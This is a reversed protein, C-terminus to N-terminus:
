GKEKLKVSITDNYYGCNPCVTHSLKAQSCKPCYSYNPSKLAFHAARKGGRSRSIRRKPLAM